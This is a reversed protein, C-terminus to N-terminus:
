HDVIQWTCKGSAIIQDGAGIHHAGCYHSGGGKLLPQSGDMRYAMGDACDVVCMMTCCIRNAHWRNQLQIRRFDPGSEVSSGWIKANLTTKVTKQM